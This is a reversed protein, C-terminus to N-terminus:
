ESINVPWTDTRFPSAPLDEKSYLSASPNNEWAYRVAEPAKVADSWVVVTSGDIKAEAQVFKKDAGAIVFSTLTG